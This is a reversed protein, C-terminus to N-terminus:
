QKGAMYGFYFPIGFIFAGAIVFFLTEFFDENKDICSNLIFGAWFTIYSIGCIFYWNM